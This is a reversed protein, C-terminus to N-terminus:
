YYPLSLKRRTTEDSVVTSRISRIHLYIRTINNPSRAREMDRRQITLYSSNSAPSAKPDRMGKSIHYEAQLCKQRFHTVDCLMEYLDPYQSKFPQLDPLASQETNGKFEYSSREVMLRELLNILEDPLTQSRTLRIYREVFELWLTASFYHFRYVGSLINIAVDVNKDDLIEPDYRRQCLYM